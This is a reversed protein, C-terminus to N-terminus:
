RTDRWVSKNSYCRYGRYLLTTRHEQRHCVRNYWVDEKFQTHMPSNTDSVLRTNGAFLDSIHPRNPLPLQFDPYVGHYIDQKPTSIDMDKVELSTIEFMLGGGNTRLTEEPPTPGVTSTVPVTSRPTVDLRGTTQDPQRLSPTTRMPSTTLMMTTGVTTRAEQRDEPQTTLIEKKTDQHEEDRAYYSVSFDVRKGHSPPEVMSVSPGVTSPPEATSSVDSPPGIPLPRPQYDYM